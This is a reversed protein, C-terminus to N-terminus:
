CQIDIAAVHPSRRPPVAEPVPPETSQALYPPTDVRPPPVTLDLRPPPSANRRPQPISSTVIFKAPKLQPVHTLKQPSKHQTPEKTTKKQEEAKAFILQLNALATLSEKGLHRDLKTQLAASMDQAAALVTDSATVTPNSIYKHKFFVM